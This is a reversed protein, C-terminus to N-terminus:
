RRMETDETTILGICCCLHESM